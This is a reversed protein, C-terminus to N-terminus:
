LIVGVSYLSLIIYYPSTEANLSVDVRRTYYVRSFYVHVSRVYGHLSTATYVNEIKHRNIIPVCHSYSCMVICATSMIMFHQLMNSDPHGGFTMDLVRSELPKFTSTWIIYSYHEECINETM